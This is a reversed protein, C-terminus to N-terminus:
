DLWFMDQGDKVKNTQFATCYNFTSYRKFKTFDVKYGGIFENM